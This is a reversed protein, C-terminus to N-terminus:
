LDSQGSFSYKERGGMIQNFEPPSWQVGSSQTVLWILIQYLWVPPGVTWHVGTSEPGTPWDLPTWQFGGSEVM